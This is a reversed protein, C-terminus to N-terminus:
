RGYNAAVIALERKLGSDVVLDRPYLDEGSFPCKNKHPGATRVFALIAEKEFVDGQPSIVPTAMLQKTLACLYRPDVGFPPPQQRFPRLDFPGTQVYAETAVAPAVGAPLAPATANTLRVVAPADSVKLTTVDAQQRQQTHVAEALVAVEFTATPTAGAASAAADDDDVIIPSAGIETMEIGEDEEEFDNEDEEGAVEIVDEETAFAAASGMGALAMMRARKALFAKRRRMAERRTRLKENTSTGGNRRKMRRVHQQEGDDEFVESPDALGFAKRRQERKQEPSPAKALSFTFKPAASAGAGTTSATSGLAAIVNPDSAANPNIAFVPRLQRYVPCFINIPYLRESPNNLRLALVLRQREDLKSQHQALIMPVSDELEANVAFRVVLAFFEVKFDSNMLVENTILRKCLFPYQALLTPRLARTKFCLLGLVKLLLQAVRAARSLHSANDFCDDADTFRRGELVDMELSLMPLAVRELLGGSNVAAYQRFKASFESTFSMMNTILLLANSLASEAIPILSASTQPDPLVNIVDLWDELQKSVLPLFPSATLSRSVLQIHDTFKAQLQPMAVDTNDGEGSFFATKFTTWTSLEYVCRIVATAHATAVTWSSFSSSSTGARQAAAGSVLMVSLPYDVSLHRLYGCLADICTVVNNNYLELFQAADIKYDCVNILIAIIDVHLQPLENLLQALQAITLSANAAQGLPISSASPVPYKSLLFEMTGGVSMLCRLCDPRNSELASLAALLHIARLQVGRDTISRTLLRYLPHGSPLVSPGAKILDEILTPSLDHATAVADYASM